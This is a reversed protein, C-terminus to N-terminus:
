LKSEMLRLALDECYLKADAKSKCIINAKIECLLLSDETYSVQYDNCKTLEITANIGTVNWVNDEIKQIECVFPNEHVFQIAEALDKYNRSIIRVYRLKNIFLLLYRQVLIPIKPMATFRRINKVFVPIGGENSAYYRFLKYDQLSDIVAAEFKHNCFDILDNKIQGYFARKNNRIIDVRDVVLRLDRVPISFIADTFEIEFFTFDLGSQFAKCKVFNTEKFNYKKM